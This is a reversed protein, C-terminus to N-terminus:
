LSEDVRMAHTEDGFRQAVGAHAVDVVAFAAVVKGNSIAGNLTKFPLTYSGPNGDSGGIGGPVLTSSNNVFFVKGPNIMNIPLGRITVGDLFGNPYSSPAVGNAITM